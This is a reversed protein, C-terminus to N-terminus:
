LADAPRRLRRALRRDALRRGIGRRARTWTSHAVPVLLLTLPGSLTLAFATAALMGSQPPVRGSVVDPFRLACSAVLLAAAAASGLTEVVGAPMAAEVCRLYGAFAVGILAALALMTVYFGAAAGMQAALLALGGLAPPLKSIRHRSAM